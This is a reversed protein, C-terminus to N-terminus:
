MGIIKDDSGLLLTCDNKLDISSVEVNKGIISDTIKGKVDRVISNELIISNEIRANIVVSGNGLCTNPLLTAHEIKCNDGIIVPGKITCQRM